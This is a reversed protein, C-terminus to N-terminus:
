WGGGMGGGQGGVGGDHGGFDGPNIQRGGGVNVNANILDQHPNTPAVMAKVSALNAVQVNLGLLSDGGSHNSTSGGVNAKATVINGINLNLGLLGGSSSRSGAQAGSVGVVAALAIASAVTLLKSM